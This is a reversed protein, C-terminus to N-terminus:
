QKHIYPFRYQKILAILSAAVAPVTPSSIGTKDQLLKSMDHRIQNMSKVDSNTFSHTFRHRKSSDSLTFGGYRGKHEFFKATRTFVLTLLEPLLPLDPLVTLNRATLSLRKERLETCVAMQRGGEDISIKCVSYEDVCVDQESNYTRFKLLFPYDPRPLCYGEIHVRANNEEFSGTPVMAGERLLKRPVRSMGEALTHERVTVPEGFQDKTVKKFVIFNGTTYRHRFTGM